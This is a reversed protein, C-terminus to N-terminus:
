GDCIVYMVNCLYLVTRLVTCQLWRTVRCVKFKENLRKVFVRM